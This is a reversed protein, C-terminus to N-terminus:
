AAQKGLYAAVVAPDQKVVDYPGTAIVQGFNLVVVQDAVRGILDMHHEVLIVAVGTAAIGAILVALAQQEAGTSGAAPEDVLFVKPRIALGRAIELRRQEGYALEGPTRDAKARLGVQDLLDLCAARTTGGGPQFRSAPFRASREYSRRALLLHELATLSPFLRVTQFTRTIGAEVLQANRALPRGEISVQGSDRQVTGTLCNILTSKGAGNPGIVALVRGAPVSFSVGDLAKLGGFQKSVGHAEILAPTM